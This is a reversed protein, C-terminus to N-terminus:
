KKEGAAPPTWTFGHQFSGATFTGVVEGSSNIGEANTDESGPFQLATFSNGHDVFGATVFTSVPYAGVYVNGQPNVGFLTFAEKTPLPIQTYSGQAYKYALYTPSTTSEGAVIIAGSATVGGVWFGSGGQFPKPPVVSQYTSGALAFVQTGSATFITGSIVGANNISSALTGSADPDSLDTFSKAAVDYIFGVETPLSYGVIQGNDNIGSTFTNTAGPYDISTYLGNSLLFGHYSYSSDTWVGVIDGATDVNGAITGTAGPYDIQTYTGQAFTMAACAVVLFASLTLRRMKM